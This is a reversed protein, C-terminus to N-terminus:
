PRVLIGADSAAKLFQPITLDGFGEHVPGRQVGLWPVVSPDSAIGLNYAQVGPLHSSFFSAFLDVTAILTGIIGKGWLAASNVMPNNAAPDGLMVIPGYHPHVGGGPVYPTPVFPYLGPLDSSMYSAIDGYTATNVFLSDAGNGPVTTSLGPGEFGIGNLGLQQAVYQAEWAGLSHGTVFVTDPDYGQEAAEAQVQQAFTLADTFAQPTQNTYGAQVDAIIQTLAILPNFLLNTGGTTGSYAVIIQNQPTVWVQAAMGSLTKTSAMPWGNVTFPVMGSPTGGLVYLNTAANLFQAVTPTATDLPGDYVLTPPIPQAVPKDLGIAEELRRFVGFLLDFIPAPSIPSVPNGASTTIGVLQLVSNVIQGPLAIIQAIPSVPGPTFTTTEVTATDVMAAAVPAAVTLASFQKATDEIDTKALSTPETFGSKKNDVDDDTLSTSVALSDVTALKPTQSETVSKSDASKPATTKENADDALKPDTPEAETEFDGSAAADEADPDKADPQKADPEDTKANTEKATASPPDVTKAPGTDTTTESQSVSTDHTDTGSTGSTDAWATGYGLTAVVLGLALAIAGFRASLISTRSGSVPTM